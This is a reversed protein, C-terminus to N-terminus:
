FLQGALILSKLSEEGANQRLFYAFHCSTKYLIPLEAPFISFSRGISLAWTRKKNSTKRLTIALSIDKLPENVVIKM